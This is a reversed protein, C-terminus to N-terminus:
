EGDGEQESESSGSNPTVAAFPSPPYAGYVVSPFAKVSTASVGLVNGPSTQTTDEEPPAPSEEPTPAPSAGGPLVRQVFGVVSAISWSNAGKTDATDARVAFMSVGSVILVTALLLAFLLFIRSTAVQIM